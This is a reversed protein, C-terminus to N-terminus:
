KFFKSVETFLIGVVALGSLIYVTLLGAGIMQSTSPDTVGFNQYFPKVADSAMSYGIGFIIGLVAISVISRIVGSPNSMISMVIGFVIALLAVIMLLYTIKNLVWDIMFDEFTM